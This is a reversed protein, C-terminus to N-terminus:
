VLAVKNLQEGVDEPIFKAYNREIIRVSTGCNKAISAIDIGGKLATAIFTHRLTYFVTERPLKAKKVAERMLEDQDSHAWQQGDPRPLLPAAPLKGKSIRSFFAHAADSLAVTRVGTKGKHIELRRASKDFDEVKLQRLEGYRAGTLMAAELLDRFAGDTHELLRRRQELTLFVRRSKAVNPFPSVKAWPGPQAVRDSKWAHNLLAKLVTMNRNATDKAKRTAEEDAGAPVQANRWEEIDGRTLRDVRKGWLATPKIKLNIRGEADNAASDGKRARLSAVYATAADSVKYGGSGQQVAGRACDEFWKLAMRQAVDRAEDEPVSLALKLANYEQKGNEHRYRAIWSGGTLTRRFGLYGRSAVYNWYPERRPDLQERQKLTAFKPATRAM